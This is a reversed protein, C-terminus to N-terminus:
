SLSYIAKLAETYNGNEDYLILPEKVELEVGGGKIGEVLIMKAPIHARGHVWQVTKPEIGTQRMLFFLDVARIAPYVCYMRGTPTLLYEAAELIQELTIAVEHRAVTKQQELNIRGTDRKRFPPNSIVCDFTRPSFISAIDAIDHHRIDITGVFGNLTSNRQAIDALERQIEVGTIQKVAGSRAVILSIIGCGAGLDIVRDTETVKATRALLVADMSFRYGNKKQIVTLNGHFMEDVTEDDHIPVCSPNNM